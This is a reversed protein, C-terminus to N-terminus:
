EQVCFGLHCFGYTDSLWDAVDELDMNSIEIETPLVIENGVEDEYYDIDWMINYIKM